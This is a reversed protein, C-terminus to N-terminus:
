RRPISSRSPRISNGYHCVVAQQDSRLDRLASSSWPRLRRQWGVKRSALDIVAMKSGDTGPKAVGSNGYIPVYATRGDYALGCVEHGTVGGVPVDAILKGTAPDLLSLTRDGQNAVLLM